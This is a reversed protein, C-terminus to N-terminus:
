LGVKILGLGHSGHPGAVHGAEGDAKILVKAEDRDLPSCFRIFFTQNFNELLIRFM